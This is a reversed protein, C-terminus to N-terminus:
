ITSKIWNRSLDNNTKLFVHSSTRSPHNPTTSLVTSKKVNPSAMDIIKNCEDVTLINDFEYVKDRNYTISCRDISNLNSKQIIKITMGLIAMFVALIIIYLQPYKYLYIYYVFTAFLISLTFIMYYFNM